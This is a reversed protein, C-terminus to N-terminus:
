RGKLFRQLIGVFEHGTHTTPLIDRGAIDTSRAFLVLWALPGKPSTMLLRRVTNTLAILGIMMMMTATITEILQPGTITSRM